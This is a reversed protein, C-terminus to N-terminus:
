GCLAKADGAYMFTKGPAESPEDGDTFFVWCAVVSYANTEYHALKQAEEECKVLYAYGSVLQGQKGDIL